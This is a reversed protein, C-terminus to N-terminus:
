DSMVDPSYFLEAWEYTKDVSNRRNSGELNISLKLPQFNEPLTLYGELQQFYKFRFTPEPQNGDTLQNWFLTVPRDDLTGEVDILVHGSVIAARRINQTLTLVYQFVLRSATPNLEVQYVDLGERSGGTGALGRYFDLESQMRTLEAQRDSEQMQLLRNAERQIEADRELIAQRNMAADLRQRLVAVEGSLFAVEQQLEKQEPTVVVRALHWTALMLLAGTLVAMLLTGSFRLNRFFSKLSRISILVIEM